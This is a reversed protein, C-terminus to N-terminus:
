DRCCTMGRRRWNGFGSGDGEDKGERTSRSLRRRGEAGEKVQQWGGKGGREVEIVVM